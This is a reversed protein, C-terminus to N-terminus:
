KADIIGEDKVLVANLACAEDWMGPGNWRDRAKRGCATCQWIWGVPAVHGVVTEPLETETETM